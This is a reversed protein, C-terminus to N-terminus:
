KDRAWWWGGREGLTGDGDLDWEIFLATLQQDTLKVGLAKKLEQKFEVPSM